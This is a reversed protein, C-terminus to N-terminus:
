KPEHRTNPFPLVDFPSPMEIAVAPLRSAPTLGLQRNLRLINELALDRVKLWPNQKGNLVIDGGSAKFGKTADMYIQMEDALFGVHIECGEFGYVREIFRLTEEKFRQKSFKEPKDLWEAAPIQMRMDPPIEALKARVRIGMARRVEIPTKYRM